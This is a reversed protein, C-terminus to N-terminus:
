PRSGTSSLSLIHLDDQVFRRCRNREKDAAEYPKCAHNIPLMKLRREAIGVEPIRFNGERQSAAFRSQARPTKKALLSM